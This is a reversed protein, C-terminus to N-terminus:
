GPKLPAPKLEGILSSSQPGAETLSDSETLNEPSKTDSLSTKLVTGLSSSTKSWWDSIQFTVGTLRKVTSEIARIWPKRKGETAFNLEWWAEALVPVDWHPLLDMPYEYNPIFKASDGDGDMRGLVTTLAVLDFLEGTLFPVMSAAVASFKETDSADKSVQTNSLTEIAEQVSSKVRRVHRMGMPFVYACKNDELEVRVGTPFLIDFENKNM